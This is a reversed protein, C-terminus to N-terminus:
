IRKLIDNDTLEITCTEDKWKCKKGSKMELVIEEEEKLKMTDKWEKTLKMEKTYRTLNEETSTRLEERTM